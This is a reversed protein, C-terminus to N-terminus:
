RIPLEKTQISENVPEQKWIPNKLGWLGNVKEFIDKNWFKEVIDWFEKDSYGTFSLFDDLMEQDVKGENEKVLRIAQERTIYGNRIWTSARDTAYSHGFKPYKMWAHVVYGLSDIQDYNEIFGERDWESNSNRFGYKQAIKYNYIGDWPYFYSLYIPELKEVTATSPYKLINVEKKSIGNKYWWEWDIHKVVDNKIQNKASYTEISYKGGYEYNINEGYIILPINMMAAIHLPATYIARDICWTPSGFNEFALRVMKRVTSHNLNFTILDCGFAESINYLNRQGVKTHTFSDGACVLLPNMDYVKKMIYTQYHSDKGGSIPIVCDYSGDNKKYKKVLKLLEEQRKKWDISKKKEFSLCPYCVGNEDFNIGPRTDPMVCKKCYKM